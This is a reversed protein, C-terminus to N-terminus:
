ARGLLHNGPDNIDTSRFYQQWLMVFRKYDISNSQGGDPNVAFKDFCAIADERQINFYGLVEIYESLDVLKDGSADLLRFMYDLYAKQWAPEKEATLSDAWMGIWDILTIKDSYEKHMTDCMLHWVDTLCLTAAIHDESSAGRVSGIADILQQFDRWEIVNNGILDFFTYFAYHWKRVLFPEVDSFQDIVDELNMNNSSDPPAADMHLHPTIQQWDPQEGHAIFQSRESHHSFETVPEWMCQAVAVALSAQVDANLQEGSDTSEVPPEDTWDALFLNLDYMTTGNRSSGWVLKTGAHNMMAFSNFQYKDGFTIRELGTGDDNIVYLAFAGFGNDADDYNSSFVIRKNDNLYYPAWSAGGLNTIQKLNAGDVDVVFLEMAVPEVLDYELLKKYKAIEDHTKPRSARFVLRKGDPSFFAGGDYGLEYTVQNLNTGDVNMTWLELDGSRISTFAIKTGDPSLVAEADYGPSDTLQTVINGYKNVKFIDYSPVIDWTYSTNCLKKLVPDKIASVNQCKKQPCTKAADAFSSVNLAWFDGAYLRDDNGDEKYFFSCTTGGLGTSTRRMIQKRPDINLDLEYIQDCDTGYGTAQLTLKSDDFSFYGEANQGGFTLQKVNKFHREGEFHVVGDYPTTTTNQWPVTDATSVTASRWVRNSRLAEEKNDDSARQGDNVWDAIFINIDSPNKANRSSGWVFKDGKHSFMPFSDFSGEDMTIKELGTGDEKVIYLDFSNYDEGTSNFNSSFVIRENDPHYFPAWNAGGLKHPFVPRLGSGNVNMVYLEMDTPAVLNYKLLAQYKKKEADTTPRSARFVIRKSDPSFFGGGDYGLVNTLQKKNSGNIDMIYLDLDGNEMSTYLIKQGDPSIVAEADYANNNTLQAVINGYENVKFIDYDPYIDWTYSTNCLQQLEPNHKAESSQCKKPPCTPDSSGKKAAMKVKHFNGAYLVDKNNPYFFSCTCSGIGTSLRNLTQNGPANLDLRYIQDCNLGYGTAQLTLYSDDFSFYAETHVGHFTLQRVNAFYKEGPFHIQAISLSILCISTIGAKM